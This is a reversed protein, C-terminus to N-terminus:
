VRREREASRPGVIQMVQRRDADSGGGFGRLTVPSSAAARIKQGTTKRCTASLTLKLLM